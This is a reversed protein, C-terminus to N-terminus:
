FDLEDVLFGRINVNVTSESNFNNFIRVNEGPRLILLPNSLDGTVAKMNRNTGSLRLSAPFRSFTTGARLTVDMYEENTALNNDVVNVMTVLFYRGAPTQTFFPQDPGSLSVKQFQCLVAPDNGTSINPSRGTYAIPDTPAGGSKELSLVKWAVGDYGEFEGSGSNFRITGRDPATADDSVRIKGEVDLAQNPTDNNIGVQAYSLSTSFILLFFTFNRM